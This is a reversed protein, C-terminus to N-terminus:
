LEMALRESYQTIAKIVGDRSLSEGKSIAGKLIQGYSLGKRKQIYWERDRKINSVTDLKSRKSNLIYKRYEEVVQPVKKEFIEIVEPLKTDPSIIIAIKPDKPDMSVTLACYATNMVEHDTVIGCFIASQVALFFNTSKKYKKLLDYIILDSTTAPATYFEMSYMKRVKSKYGESEKQYEKFLWNELNSYPILDEISLKKRSKTIDKSFDKRDVLFAIDCFKKNDQVQIDIYNQGM